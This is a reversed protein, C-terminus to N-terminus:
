ASSITRCLIKITWPAHYPSNNHSPIALNIYLLSRTSLYPPKHTTKSAACTACPTSYYVSSLLILSLCCPLNSLTFPLLQLLKSTQALFDPPLFYIKSGPLTIYACTYICCGLSIGFTNVLIYGDGIDNRPLYVVMVRSMSFWAEHEISIVLRIAITYGCPLRQNLLNCYVVLGRILDICNFFNM